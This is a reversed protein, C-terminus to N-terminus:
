SSSKGLADVRTLELLIMIVNLNDIVLTFVDNEMTSTFVLNFKCFKPCLKLCVISTSLTGKLNLQM